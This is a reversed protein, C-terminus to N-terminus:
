VEQVRTHCCGNSFRSIHVDLGSTHLLHQLLLAVVCFFLRGSAKGRFSCTQLAQWFANAFSNQIQDAFQTLHCASSVGIISHKLFVCFNPM